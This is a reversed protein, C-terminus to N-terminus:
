PRNQLPCLQDLKTSRRRQQPRSTKATSTTSCVIVLLVANLEAFDPNILPRSAKGVLANYTGPLSFQIRGGHLVLGMIKPKISTIPMVKVKGWKAKPATRETASM